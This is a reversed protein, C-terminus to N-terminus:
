RTQILRLSEPTLNDLAVDTKAQLDQVVKAPLITRARQYTASYAEKSLDIWRPLYKAVIGFFIATADVYEPVVGQAAVDITYHALVDQLYHSTPVNGWAAESKGWTGASLGGWPKIAGEVTKRTEGLLKEIPKVKEFFAAEISQVKDWLFRTIEDAKENIYDVIKDWWGTLIYDVKRRMEEIRQAMDKNVISVVGELKMAIADTKRRLDRLDAVLEKDIKELISNIDGRVVKIATNIADLTKIVGNIYPKIKQEYLTKIKHILAIEPAFTKNVWERFLNYKTAVWDHVKKVAKWLGSFTHFIGKFEGYAHRVAHFVATVTPVTKKGGGAM